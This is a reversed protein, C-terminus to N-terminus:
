IILLDPNISIMIMPIILMSTTNMNKSNFIKVTNTSKKLMGHTIIYFMFISYLSSSFMITTMTVVVTSSTGSWNMISKLSFLEGMFNISPPMPSNSMCMFFWMMMASPNMSFMSKNIIISRSKSNKYMINAMYFLGASCTGHGIMIYMGGLMSKSKDLTITAFVLTMHVVSSYAIMTKLDTQMFCIMSLYLATWLSFSLIIWELKNNMESNTSTMRILGYSGLKLLISALIMSGQVPSEVHVKPLWMHLFMTPMKMMFVLMLSLYEWKNMEMYQINWLSLNTSNNMMTTIFPLSTMVTMMVMFLAAEVREPQYGWTMIIMLVVIMSMEFMLYFMMLNWSYFTMMLLILMMFVSKNYIKPQNIKSFILVFGIWLSLNFTWFSLEDGWMFYSIKSVEQKQMNLNFMLMVLSYNIILQKTKPVMIMMMIVMFFKM